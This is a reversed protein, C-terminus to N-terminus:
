QERYPRYLRFKGRGFYLLLSLFTVTALVLLIQGLPHVFLWNALDFSARGGYSLTAFLALKGLFTLTTFVPLRVRLLGSVIGILDFPLPTAAFIFISWAGYRTYARKVSELNVRDSIIKGGGLGAAYSTMEGIASGAAASFAVLFPDLFAGAVPVFLYGPLPFFISASSIMQLLFIGLYGSDALAELFAALLFAM